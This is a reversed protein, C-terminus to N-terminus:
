KEWAYRCILQKQETAFRQRRRLRGSPGILEPYIAPKYAYSLPLEQAQKIPRRQPLVVM